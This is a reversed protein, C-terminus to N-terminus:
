QEGEEALELIRPLAKRLYGDLKEFVLEYEERPDGIPDPIDDKSGDAFDSLLFTRDASRPDVLAVHDAHRRTMALVLDANGLTNRSSLARAEHSGIDIGHERCVSQAHETAPAGTLGATGASRASIEARREEPILSRLIGEAMASRCTNGTCVLLVTFSM